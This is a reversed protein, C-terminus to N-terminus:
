AASRFDPNALINAGGPNDRAFAAQPQCPAQLPLQQCVGLSEGGCDLPSPFLCLATSTVVSRVDQPLGPHGLFGDHFICQASKAKLGM